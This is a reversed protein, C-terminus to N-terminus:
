AAVPRGTNGQPRAEPGFAYSFKWFRKESVPGIGQLCETFGPQPAPNRCIQKKDCNTEAEDAEARRRDPLLRRGTRGHGFQPVAQFAHLEASRQRESVFCFRGIFIDQRECVALKRRPGTKLISERRRRVPHAAVSVPDMKADFKVAGLVARKAKLPDVVALFHLHGCEPRLVAPVPGNLLFQSERASGDPLPFLAANPDSSAWCQIHGVM